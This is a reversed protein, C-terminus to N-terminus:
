MYESYSNPRYRLCFIHNFQVAEHYELLISISGQDVWPLPTGQGQTRDRFRILDVGWSWLINVENMTM